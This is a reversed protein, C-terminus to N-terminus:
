KEIPLNAAVWGDFGSTMNTLNTYDQSLVECAKASRAGSKCGVVIATKTDPFEKKVESVFDPNPSMGQATRFMFPINSAGPAHGASFEEVTRVDLYPVKSTNCLQYAEAPPADKFTNAAMVVCRLSRVQCKVAPKAVHKTLSLSSYVATRLM